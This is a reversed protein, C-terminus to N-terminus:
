LTERRIRYFKIARDLIWRRIDARSQGYYIKVDYRVEFSVLAQRASEPSVQSMHYGSLIDSESAEIVIGAYGGSSSIEKFKEMKKVTKNREKGIYSYFDSIKKREIIFNDEFGRISYDGYRLTETVVRLGHQSEEFLPRKERTDQILYFGKPFSFPKLISRHIYLPRLNM